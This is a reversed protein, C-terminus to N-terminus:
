RRHQGTAAATAACRTMSAWSRTIRRGSSRASISTAMNGAAQVYCGCSRGSPVFRRRSPPSFQPSQDAALEANWRAVIAVADSQLAREDATTRSRLRIRDNRDGKGMDALM